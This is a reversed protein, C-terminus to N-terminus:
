QTEKSGDAGGATVTSPLIMLRYGVGPQTLILEPMRPNREIKKRLGTIYVHLYNTEQQVQSGWVEQLLQRHTVVRGANQVLVRVLEHETPTLRVEAGDVSVLRNPLDVTLRGSVFPMHPEQPLRSRMGVKIRALLEGTNFPKVLYDDAGIELLKVVDEEANRVSLIIVPVSSWTRLEALVDAGDRDPLGLDLLIIDPKQGAAMQLGDSGNAAEHVSYGQKELSVHLFRRIQAEDDIVLVSKM